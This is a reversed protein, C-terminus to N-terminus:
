TIVSEKFDEVKKNHDDKSGDGTPIDDVVNVVVDLRNNTDHGAQQYAAVGKKLSEVSELEPKSVSNIGDRAIQDRLQELSSVMSELAKASKDDGATVKDWTKKQQSTQGDPSYYAGKSFAQPAEGRALADVRKEATSIEGKGKKAAEMTVKQPHWDKIPSWEGNAIKESFSAKEEQDINKTEKKYNEEAASVRDQYKKEAEDIGKKYKANIRNKEQEKEKDSMSSSQEALSIERDRNKIDENNDREEKAEKVENDRREKAETKAAKKKEERDEKSKEGRKKTYSAVGHAIAPAAMFGAGVVNGTALAATTAAGTGAVAKSYRGLRTDGLKELSAYSKEGMGMKDLIKKRKDRKEKDRNSKLDSRWSGLFQSAKDMSDSGTLSSAVRTTGQAVGLGQRGAFKGGVKATDKVKRGTWAKGKNIAMLGKGAAKGSVEGIEQAIVLGGLLFAITIIYEQFVPGSLFSSMLGDAMGMSDITELSFQGAANDASYLALWLFFALVPGVILQKSFSSAWRSAYGKGHPFAYLLFALPSLVIYVWIMIIRFLLVGLMACVVVFAILAAILAVVIGGVTEIGLNKGSKDADKVFSMMENMGLLKVLQNAGSNQAGAGAFANVFTLMVVQSIEVAVGCITKSFNILIAMIIVKPLLKKINYSEVRLITAFSIVLLILIFFMNCLDRIITWGHSVANLTVFQDWQAVQTLWGIVFSLLGGLCWVIFYILWGFLIIIKNKVNLSGESEEDSEQAMVSDVDGFVFFVVLFLFVLILFAWTRKSKLIKKIGM